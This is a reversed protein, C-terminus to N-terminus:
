IDLRFPEAVEDLAVTEVVFSGHSGILETKRELEFDFLTFRELPSRHVARLTVVQEFVRELEPRQVLDCGEILLSTLMPYLFIQGENHCQILGTTESLHMLLFEGFFKADLGPGNGIILSKLAPLCRLAQILDAQQRWGYVHLLALGSLNANVAIHKEWIRNFEPHNFSVGLERIQPLRFTALLTLDDVDLRTCVPMQTLQAHSLKPGEGHLSLRCMELKHFTQGALFSSHIGKAELVKLTYFLPLNPPPATPLIGQEEVVRLEVLNHLTSLCGISLQHRAVFYEAEKFPVEALSWDCCRTLTIIGYPSSIGIVSFGHHTLLDHNSEEPRMVDWCGELSDFSLELEFKLNSWRSSIIDTFVPILAKREPGRLWRKYHVKLTELKACLPLRPMAAMEYPSNPNSRTDVFAQFFTASLAHPSALRLALETLAPLLRLALVLLQESCQVQLELLSLSQASAFVMPCMAVFQPNGRRTNWQGSRVELWCLPLHHFHRLPDLHNSDYTLHTCHPMSVPRLCIADIHHPFTISCSQLVPFAKGAMWQVSASKLTLRRLTQILPLSADSSYIPLHLRESDFEELRQLHPLIDAPSEMRKSLWIRLTTLSCFVHLCAPQVLYQVAGLNSLNLRTFHPPASTTIAAMLPELFSGLDYHERLILGRLSELPQVITDPAKYEGPPPFSRLILFHWRSAAECAVMLCAHFDDANFDKGHGEDNVDVVVAFRFRRGQIFTQVVEKKTARRIWLQHTIGPTSLMIDYWRQCVLM